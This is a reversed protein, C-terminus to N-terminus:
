YATLRIGIDAIGPLTERKMNHYVRLSLSDGEELSADPLSFHYQYLTIGQGLVTGDPTVLPCDLTDRSTRCSPLVTQEVILSLARFPYSDATRLEVARRVAVTGQGVPKVTFFLTDGREWGALPTHEYHHYITKRDCGAVVLAVTLGILCLWKNSRRSM